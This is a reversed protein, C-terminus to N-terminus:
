SRGCSKTWQGSHSPITNKEARAASSRPSGHGGDRMASGEAHLRAYTASDLAARALSQTRTTAATENHERAETRAAYIAESYAALKVAARPRADLACDLALYAAAVHKGEGRM